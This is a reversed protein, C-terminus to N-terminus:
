ALSRTRPNRGPTFTTLIERIQLGQILPTSNSNALHSIFSNEVNCFTDKLIIRIKGTYYFPKIM